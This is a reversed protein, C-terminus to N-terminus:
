AQVRAVFDPASQEDLPVVIVGRLLCGFFAAVWEACNESWFLVRDGKGIGRQALERAFQFAVARLRAYPWREIRVGRRHVLAIENGRKACDDLLSVIDSRM